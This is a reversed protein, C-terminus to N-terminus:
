TNTTSQPARGDPPLAHEMPTRLEPPGLVEVAEGWRWLWPDLEVFTTTHFSRRLRGDAERVLKQSKGWTRESVFREVWDVRELRLDVIV